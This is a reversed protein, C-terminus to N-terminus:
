KEVHDGQLNECIICHDYLKHIGDEYFSADQDGLYLDVSDIIDKDMAFHQGSLEKKM